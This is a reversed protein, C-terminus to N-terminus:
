RGAAGAVGRGDNGAGVPRLTREAPLGLAVIEVVDHALREVPFAAQM